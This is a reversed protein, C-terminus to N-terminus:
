TLEKADMQLILGMLDTTNSVARCDYKPYKDGGERLFFDQDTLDHIKSFYRVLLFNVAFNYSFASLGIPYDVFSSIIGM